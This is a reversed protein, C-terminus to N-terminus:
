SLDVVRPSVFSGLLQRRKEKLNKLQQLITLQEECNAIDDNLRTLHMKAKHITSPNNANAVAQHDRAVQPMIRSVLANAENIMAKADSNNDEPSSSAVRLSHISNQLFNGVSVPVYPDNQAMVALTTHHPNMQQQMAMQQQFATHQRFQRHHQAQAQQLMMANRFQDQHAFPAAGGECIEQDTVSIKKQGNMIKCLDLRDRHFFDHSFIFQSLGTAYLKHFGWRKLKRSFSEIKYERFFKPLIKKVFEDQDTICFSRGSPLWAIAHRCEKSNLVAHLKEAFNPKRRCSPATIASGCQPQMSISTYNSAASDGAASAFAPSHHAHPGIVGAAPPMTVPIPIIATAALVRASNVDTMSCRRQENLISLYIAHDTSGGGSSPLTQNMFTMSPSPSIMPLSSRRATSMAAVLRPNASVAAAMLKSTDGGRRSLFSSPSLAHGERMLDAQVMADVISKNM